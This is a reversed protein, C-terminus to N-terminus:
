DITPALIGYGGWDRHMGEPITAGQDPDLKLACGRADDNLTFGAPLAGLAKAVRATFQEDIRKQEEETPNARGNSVLTYHKRAEREIRLLARWLSLGPKGNTAIAELARHHNMRQRQIHDNAKM